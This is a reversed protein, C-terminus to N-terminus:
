CIHLHNTQHHERVQWVVPVYGRNPILYGGNGPNGMKM